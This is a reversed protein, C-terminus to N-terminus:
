PQFAVFVLTDGETSRIEIGENVYIVAGAKLTNGNVNIGGRIVILVSEAEIM